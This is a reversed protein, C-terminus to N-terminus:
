CGTISIVSPHGTSVQRPSSHCSPKDVTSCQRRPQKHPIKNCKQQPIKNCGGPGGQGGHAGQYPARRKRVLNDAAETLDLSNTEVENDVDEVDMRRHIGNQYGEGGGNYVPQFGGCVRCNSSSKSKLFKCVENVQCIRYHM